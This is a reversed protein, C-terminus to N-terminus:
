SAKNEIIQVKYNIWGRSSSVTVLIIGDNYANSLSKHIKSGMNMHSGWLRLKM